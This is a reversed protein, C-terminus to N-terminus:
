RSQFHRAANRVAGCVIRLATDICRRQKVAIRWLQLRSHSVCLKRLLKAPQAPGSEAAGACM